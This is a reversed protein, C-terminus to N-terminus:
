KLNEGIKILEDKQISGLINYIKNTESWLISRINKNVTYYGDVDNIRIKEGYGNETDIRIGTGVKEISIQVYKEGSVFYWIINDDTIKKEKLEFGEPLYDLCIDDDAYKNTDDFTFETNKAGLDVFFQIVKERWADVSYITIGTAVVFLILFSAVMKGCRMFFGRKKKEKGILREMDKMHRESPIRDHDSAKIQSGEEEIVANVADELLKETLIDFTDKDKMMEVGGGMESIYGLDYM